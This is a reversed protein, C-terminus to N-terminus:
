FFIKRMFKGKKVSESLGGGGYPGFDLLGFGIFNETSAGKNNM